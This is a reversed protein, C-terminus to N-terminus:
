FSQTKWHVLDSPKSSSGRTSGHRRGAAATSHEWKWWPTLSRWYRQSNDRYFTMEAFYICDGTVDGCGAAHACAVASKGACDVFVSHGGLNDVEEWRMAGGDATEHLAHVSVRQVKAPQGPAGAGHDTMLLLLLLRDGAVVLRPGFHWSEFTAADDPLGTAPLMRVAEQHDDPAAGLCRFELLQARDTIGLVRGRFDAVSAVFSAARPLRHHRLEAAAAPRGAPPFPLSAFDHKTVFLVLHTSTLTAYHYPAHPSPLAVSLREAGTIADVLVLLGRPRVLFILHGRASSLLSPSASAAAGADLPSTVPRRIMLPSWAHLLFKAGRGRYGPEQKLHLPPIRPLLLDSVSALLFRRWPRCTAAFSSLSRLCPVLLQLVQRLPLDPLHSWERLESPHPPERELFLQPSKTM